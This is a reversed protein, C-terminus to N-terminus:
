VTVPDFSTTGAIQRRDWRYDAPPQDLQYIDPFRSDLMWTEGDVGVALMAHYERGIGPLEETWCLMVTLALPSWGAQRLREAKAETYDRCVWSKGAEPQYAWYDVPETPGMGAVYPIINFETNVAQLQDRQEPTM